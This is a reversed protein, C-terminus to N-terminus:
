PTAFGVMLVLVHEFTPMLSEFPGNIAKHIAGTRWRFEPEEAHAIYSVDEISNGIGRKVMSLGDEEGSPADSVNAREKLEGPHFGDIVLDVVGRKGRVGGFFKAEPDANCFVDTMGHGRTDPALGGVFDQIAGDETRSEERADVVCPKGRNGGTWVKVPEPVFERGGVGGRWM